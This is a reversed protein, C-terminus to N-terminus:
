KNISTSKSSSGVIGLGSVYNSRQKANVASPIKYTKSKSPKPIKSSDIDNVDNNRNNTNNGSLRASSMNSTNRDTTMTATTPKRHPPTLSSYSSNTRKLLGIHDDNQSSSPVLNPLLSSSSERNNKNLIFRQKADMQSIMNTIDNKKQEAVNLLDIKNISPELPSHNRISNVSSNNSSANSRTSNGASSTYQHYRLIKSFPLKQINKLKEFDEFSSYMIDNKSHRRSKTHSQNTTTTTTTTTLENQHNTATTTSSHLSLKNIDNGDDIYSGNIDNSNTSINSNNNNYNHGSHNTSSSSNNYNSRASLILPFKYDNSGGSGGGSGLEVLSSSSTQSNNNNNNLLRIPPPSHPHHNHHHDSTHEADLRHPSLVLLPSDREERKDAISFNNDSMMSSRKLLALSLLENSSTNSSSSNNNNNTNIINNSSTNIINTTNRSPHPSAPAHNQNKPSMTHFNKISNIQSTLLDIKNDVDTLQQQQQQLLSMASSTNTNSINSNSQKRLNSQASHTTRFAFATSYSFPDVGLVQAQTQTLLPQQIPQSPTPTPTPTTPQNTPQNIVSFEFQKFHSKKTPSLIDNSNNYGTSSSHTNIVTKTTNSKNDIDTISGYSTTTTKTSEEVSGLVSAGTAGQEDDSSANSRSTEITGNVTRANASTAATSTNSMIRKTFTVKDYNLAVRRQCITNPDRLYEEYYRKLRIGGESAIQERYDKMCRMDILMSQVIKDFSKFKSLHIKSAPNIRRLDLLSIMCAKGLNMYVEPSPKHHSNTISTVSNNSSSSSNSGSTTNYYSSHNVDESLDMISAQSSVQNSGNLQDSTKRYTNYNCELTYSHIIGYNLYNHVRGSGEASLGKSLDGADIRFMHQKSFLCSDYNFQKSYVSILKCYLQNQIQDEVTEM